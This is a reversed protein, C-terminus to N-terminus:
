GSTPRPLPFRLHFAGTAPRMTAKFKVGDITHEALAHLFTEFRTLLFADWGDSLAPAETANDVGEMLVYEGAPKWGDASLRGCLRRRLLKTSTHLQFFALGVQDDPPFGSSAPAQRRDSTAPRDKQPARGHGDDPAEGLLHPRHSASRGNIPDTADDGQNRQRAIAPLPPLDHM